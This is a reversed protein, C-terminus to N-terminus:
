YTKNSDVWFGSVQGAPHLPKLACGTTTGAGNVQTTVDVVRWKEGAFDSGDGGGNDYGTVFNPTDGYTGLLRGGCYVNVLPHVVRTTSLGNSDGYYHVMIRYTDNNKPNDMNINEPVGKDKINDIDLRPNHCSGVETWCDGMATGNCEMINSSSYGWEAQFPTGFLPGFQPCSLPPTGAIFQPAKCTLYYCDDPNVNENAGKGTLFWDTASGAKHMHLDLDSKGTTDWCLEVRLGPGRVHILLICKHQTGDSATVIMTIEYDGSLTPRFTLTSASAGSITNTEMGNLRFSTKGSTTFLLRDCPGGEVTWSWNMTSGPFYQAGNIVYDTFPAAEALDKSDPCMISTECCSPDDDKCGNCNNDLTDCTEASPAIGGTCDGWFGFEENGECRQTGDQCAGVNRRGPPGRFCPKVDGPICPCTEDVQGNCNNDLGDGCIESGGCKDAVPNACETGTCSGGADSRIDADGYNNMIAGDPLPTADIDVFDDPADISADKTGTTPRGDTTGNVDADIPGTVATYSPGCSALIAFPLIYAYKNM